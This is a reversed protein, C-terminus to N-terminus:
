ANPAHLIAQLQARLQAKAPQAQEFITAAKHFELVRVNEIQAEVYITPARDKLKHDLISKEAIQFSNFLTESLSPLKGPEGTRTGMVDIAIVPDCDDLLLDYPLPNVCGGDILVRDDIVVPKFIGPLAMSANIAPLLPGSEFVVERRNWFDSAVVKLPIALEEFTSVRIIQQLSALFSDAKLVSSRGLEVGILDLWGLVQRGSFAESVSQPLTTLQEIGERIERASRGSAYVVGIIAGISTGAIQAPRVGLEDLVELMPIHALGKAGGGGLALGIRKDAAIEM